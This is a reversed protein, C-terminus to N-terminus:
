LGDIPGLSDAVVRFVVRTGEPPIVSGFAACAAPMLFMSQWPFCVDVYRGRSRETTRHSSATGAM